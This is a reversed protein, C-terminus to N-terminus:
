RDFWAEIAFIVLLAVFGLVLGALVLAYVYVVLM